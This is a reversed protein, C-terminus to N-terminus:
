TRKLTNCHAATHQLTEDSESEKTHQLTNCPTAPHQLTNYHTAIHRLTNSHTRVRASGSFEQKVTERQSNYVCVCVCVYICIRTYTHINSIYTSLQELERKHIYIRYIRLCSCQRTRKERIAIKSLRQLTNCHTAGHRMNVPLHVKSNEKRSNCRTVTHQLTNLRTACKNYVTASEPLKRRCYVAVCQLASCCVAVCQLVNCRVAVRQLVGCCGVVCQLVDCQV